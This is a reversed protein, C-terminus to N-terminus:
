EDVNLTGDGSHDAKKFIEELRKEFQVQKAQQAALEKEKDIAAIALTEKLFMAAIIRVLAFVVALIYVFYFVAFWPSVNEILPRVYKPWCGSLTVEFMTYM